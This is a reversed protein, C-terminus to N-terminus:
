KQGSKLTNWASMKLITHEADFWLGWQFAINIYIYIFCSSTVEKSGGLLKINSVNKQKVSKNRNFIQNPNLLESLFWPNATQIKLINHIYNIITFIDNM